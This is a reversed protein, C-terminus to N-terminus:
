KVEQIIQQDPSINEENFYDDIHELCEYRNGTVQESFGQAIYGVLQSESVRNLNVLLISGFHDKYVAHTKIYGM